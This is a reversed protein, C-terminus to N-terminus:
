LSFFCAGRGVRDEGATELRCYRVVDCYQSTGCVVTLGCNGTLDHDVDWRLRHSACLMEKVRGGGEPHNSSHRNRHSINGSDETNRRAVYGQSQLRGRIYRFRPSITHSHPHFQKTMAPSQVAQSCGVYVIYTPHIRVCFLCVTCTGQGIRKGDGVKVYRNTVDPCVGQYVRTKHPPASPIKQEEPHNNSRHRTKKKKQQQCYQTLSFGAAGSATSSAAVGPVSRKTM